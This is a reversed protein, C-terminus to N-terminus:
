TELTSNCATRRAGKDELEDNSVAPNDLAISAPLGWRKAPGALSFHQVSRQNQRCFFGAAKPRGMAGRTGLGLSSWPVVLCRASRGHSMVSTPVPRPNSRRARGVGARHNASTREAGFVRCGGVPLRCGVSGGVFQKIRGSRSGITGGSRGPARSLRLRPVLAQPAGPLRPERFSSNM